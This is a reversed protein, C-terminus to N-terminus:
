LFRANMTSIVPITPPRIMTKEIKNNHLYQKFRFCKLYFNFIKKNKYFHEDVYLSVSCIFSKYSVIFWADNNFEFRKYWHPFRSNERSSGRRDFGSSRYWNGSYTFILLMEVYTRSLFYAKKKLSWRYIGTWFCYWWIIMCRSYIIMFISFLRTLTL